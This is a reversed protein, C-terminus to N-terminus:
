RKMLRETSSVQLENSQIALIYLGQPLDSMELRFTNDGPVINIQKHLVVKGVADFLTLNAAGSESSNLTVTANDAVPNPFLANVSVTPAEDIGITAADIVNITFGSGRVVVSVTDCYTSTCFNNDSITLCVLYSGLNAYTHTPYSGTAVTGDGFDWVYTFPGTGTSNNVMLVTSSSTSDPWWYFSANCPPNGNGIVISDCYTHWCTSDQPNSVTLCILYSGNAAYTYTPNMASSSAGDGFTWDYDLNSGTSSNNFAATMSSVSSSFSAVCTGGGNGTGQIYISDCSVTTCGNTSDSATVCIWYLGDTSYTHTGQFFWDSSGDGWDWMYATGPANGTSTNTVTATGTGSNTTFSATCQASGASGAFVLALLLLINKM